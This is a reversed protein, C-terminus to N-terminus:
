STLESIQKQRTDCATRSSAQRKVQQLAVKGQFSAAGCEWISTWSENKLFSVVEAIRDQLEAVWPLSCHWLELRVAAICVSGRVVPEPRNPSVRCLKQKATRSVELYGPKYLWEPVVQRTALLVENIVRLAAVHWYFRSHGKLFLHLNM